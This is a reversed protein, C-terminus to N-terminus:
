FEQGFNIKSLESSKLGLDCCTAVCAAQAFETERRMELVKPDDIHETGAAHRPGNFYDIERLPMAVIGAVLRLQM